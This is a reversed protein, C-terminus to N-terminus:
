CLAQWLLLVEDAAAVTTTAIMIIVTLTSLGQAPLVGVGSEDPRTQCPYSFFDSAPPSPGSALSDPIFVFDYSSLLSLAYQTM